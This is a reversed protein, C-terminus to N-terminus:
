FFVGMNQGKFRKLRVQLYVLIFQKIEHSIQRLFLSNECVMDAVEKIIVLLQFPEFLYYKGPYKM